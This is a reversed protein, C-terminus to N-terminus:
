LESRNNIKIIQTHTNKLYISVSSFSWSSECEKEDKVESVLGKSRWDVAAEFNQISSVNLTKTQQIKPKKYKNRNLFALFEESTLDGFKNIAKSYTVEGNRFKINHEEIKEINESFIAFRQLEENTSKYQKNHTLQFKKYYIYSNLKSNCVKFKNWKENNLNQPIALTASVIIVIILFTEM